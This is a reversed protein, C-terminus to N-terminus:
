WVGVYDDAGDDDDGGRVVMVALLKVDVRIKEYVNCLGHLWALKDGYDRDGGNGCVVMVAVLKVDVTIRWYM